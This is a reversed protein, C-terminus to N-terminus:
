NGTPTLVLAEPEDPYFTDFWWCAFEGAYSKYPVKAAFERQQAESSLFSLTSLLSQRINTETENM